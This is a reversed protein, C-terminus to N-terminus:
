KQHSFWLFTTPVVDTVTSYFISGTELIHDRPNDLFSIPEVLPDFLDRCDIGVHTQENELMRYELKKLRDWSLRTRGPFKGLSVSKWIADGQKLCRRVQRIQNDTYGLNGKRDPEPDIQLVYTTWNSRARNKLPNMISTCYDSSVTPRDLGAWIQYM